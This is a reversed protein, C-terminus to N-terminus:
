ANLKPRPQRARGASRLDEISALDMYRMLSHLTRYNNVKIRLATLKFQEFSRRPEIRERDGDAAPSRKPPRAASATAMPMPRKANVESRALSNHLLVKPQGNELGTNARRAVVRNGRRREKQTLNRRRDVMAIRAPSEDDAQRRKCHAQFVRERKPDGKQRQRPNRAGPHQYENGGPRELAQRRLVNWGSRCQRRPTPVPITIAPPQQRTM